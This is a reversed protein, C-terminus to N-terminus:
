PVVIQIGPQLGEASVEVYGDAFIGTGIGVLQTTGDALVVEIAYGGEQLALLASVPAVLAGQAFETTVHIEVTAGTWNSDIAENPSIVVDLYSTEQSQNAAAVIVPVAGFESVVGAVETDDPLEIVVETGIDLLEQDVLDLQATIRQATTQEFIVGDSGVASTVLAVPTLEYLNVGIGVSVGLSVGQKSVQSPGPAFVVQGLPVEGTAEEGNDSQWAAVAQVTEADFVEDIEGPDYGLAALNAKLWLIDLGPGSDLSMDRWPTEDGYMLYSSSAGSKLDSLNAQASDLSLKASELNLLAQAIEQNDPDALLDDLRAEASVLNARAQELELPDVGQQLDQLQEQATQLDALASDIIAQSPGQQLDQLQEQATQLDALASDIIAQSPGEELDDLATRASEAEVLASQYGSEDSLYQLNDNLLGDAEEVWILGIRSDARADAIAKTLLDMTADSLPVEDCVKEVKVDWTVRCYDEWDDQLEALSFDRSTRASLVQHEARTVTAQAANLEAQTPPTLLDDYTEQARTVTAQAANLEAQTPPTLLDDYTEQARTVTAQAANLEAQTPPTLLKNLTIQAQAVSAQASALSSTDVEEELRSLALEAGILSSRASVVRQEADRIQADTAMPDISYLTAGREMVDGENPIQTVVGSIPASVSLPDDYALTGTMTTTESLDALRITTSNLATESSGGGDSDDEAAMWVVIVVVLAAVLLVATTAIWFRKRSAEM